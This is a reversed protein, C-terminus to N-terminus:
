KDPGPISSAKLITIAGNLALLAPILGYAGMRWETDVASFPLLTVLIFWLQM